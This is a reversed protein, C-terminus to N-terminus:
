SALAFPLVVSPLSKAPEAIRKLLLRVAERGLDAEPTLMTLIRSSLPEGNFSALALRDSPLNREVSADLLIRADYPTYAVVATPGDPGLLGEVFSHRNEVENMGGNIWTSSVLGAEAMADLYGRLRDRKSYHMVGAELSVSFFPDLYTIRRHGREILMRTLQRSAGADDAYVADTPRKCNVWVVPSRLDRLAAEIETSAGVHFNVLMGDVALERLIRPQKGDQCRLDPPLIATLINVDAAAAESLMGHFVLESLRSTVRDPSLVLGLTRFKGTSIAKAAASPKYNYKAALERIREARAMVTPRCLDRDSNLIRQVTRPSVGIEDAILSYIRLSM